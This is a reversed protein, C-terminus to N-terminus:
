FVGREANQAEPSARLRAHHRRWHESTAEQLKVSRYENEGAWFIFGFLIVFLLLSMRAQPDYRTVAVVIAALALLKGVTAAFFTARVYPLRHALLARFIRGGDMPFVPALNFCGMAFNMVLLHQGFNKATFEWALLENFTPIPVFLLLVSIIFFNVAPGALAIAIEHRPERPISDFEAMGGIPLLLIRPVRVGYTRATLAHGFEHLVVCTFLMLTYTISWTLGLWHAAPAARWGQWGVYALLALFTVHVSLLIGGVRFLSISWTLM